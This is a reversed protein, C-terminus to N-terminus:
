KAVHLPSQLPVERVHGDHVGYQGVGGGGGGGGGHSSGVSRESSAHWSLVAQWAAHSETLQILEDM